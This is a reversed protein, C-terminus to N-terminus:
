LQCILILYLKLLIDSLDIAGQGCEVKQELLLCVPKYTGSSVSTRCLSFVKRGSKLHIYGLLSLKNETHIGLCILNAFFTLSSQVM